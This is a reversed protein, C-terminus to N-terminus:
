DHHPKNELFEGTSEESDAIAERIEEITRPAQRPRGKLKFVAIRELLTHTLRKPEGHPANM